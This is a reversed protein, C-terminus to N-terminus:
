QQKIKALHGSRLTATLPYKASFLLPLQYVTQEPKLEVGRGSAYLFGIMHQAYPDGKKAKPLWEGLATKYDGNHYADM